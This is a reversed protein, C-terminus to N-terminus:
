YIFDRKKFHKKNKRLWFYFKIKYIIKKMKIGKMFINLGLM